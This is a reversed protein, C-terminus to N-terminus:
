TTNVRPLPALDPEVFRTKADPHTRREPSYFLRLVHKSLLQPHTDCFADATDTPMADGYAKMTTAVLRLFAHTTTENYGAFPGESVNNAANYQQIAKRVRPLAEDFGHERLYLFAVKVHTRHTWQKFPLTCDKLNDCCSPMLCLHSRRCKAVRTPRVATSPRAQRNRDGETENETKDQAKEKFAPSPFVNQTELPLQFADAVRTMYNCWAGYWIFDIARHDGFTKKLASVDSTTLGGPQKTQKHAFELALREAPSFVSWNGDSLQRTRKKIDDKSLGAVALLMESHGM